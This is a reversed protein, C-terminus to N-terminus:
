KILKRWVRGLIQEVQRKLMSLVPQQPIIAVDKEGIAKYMNDIFEQLKSQHEKSKAALMDM